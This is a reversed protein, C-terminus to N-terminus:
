YLDKTLNTLCKIDNKVNYEAVFNEEVKKNPNDTEHIIGILKDFEYIFLHGKTARYKLNNSEFYSLLSKNIFLERNNADIFKLYIKNYIKETENSRIAAVSELDQRFFYLELEPRLHGYEKINILTESKKLKMLFHGQPPVIYFNDYDEYYSAAGLTAISKMLHHQFKLTNM